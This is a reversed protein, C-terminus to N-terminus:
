FVSYQVLIFIIQPFILNVRELLYTGRKSIDEADGVLVLQAPILNQGAVHWKGRVQLTPFYGKIWAQWSKKAFAANYRYGAKFRGSRSFCQCSYKTCAAPWSLM